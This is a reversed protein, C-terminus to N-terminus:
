TKATKNEKTLFNTVPDTIIIEIISKLCKQTIAHHNLFNNKNIQTKININHVYRHMNYM